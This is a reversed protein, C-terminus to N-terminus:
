RRKSGTRARYRALLRERQSEPLYKSGERLTLGSVRDIHERLFGHSLKPRKKSVERLIWGIAKRIFFEREEVMGSAYRAFRDFDGEGRRLPRLLALMSARRVWFDEDESWADLTNLLTPDREVLPGIISTSLWDVHAWGKSRRLLDELLDIDEPELERHYRQLLELGVSRLDFWQTDWLATVLALLEGRSLDRHARKFAAAAQRITKADVGHFRLESKHYGKEFAAREPDGADAFGRRFAAVEARVNV